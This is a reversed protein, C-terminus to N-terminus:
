TTTKKKRKKHGEMATERLDSCPWLFIISVSPITEGGVVEGRPHFLLFPLPGAAALHSGHQRTNCFSPTISKGGSQIMVKQQWLVKVGDCLGKENNGAERHMEQRERPTTLTEKATGQYVLEVRVINM